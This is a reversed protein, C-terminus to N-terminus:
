SDPKADCYTKDIFGRQGTTLQILLRGNALKREEIVITGAPLTQLPQGTADLLPCDRVCAHLNRQSDVSHAVSGPLALVLCLGAVSLLRWRWGHHVISMGICCGAGLMLLVGLWGTGPIALPGLKDLWSPPVPIEMAELAWKPEQESPARLHAALLWAVAKGYERNDHAALGLDYYDYWADSKQAREYLLSVAEGPRNQGWADYAADSALIDISFLSLCLVLCRMMM